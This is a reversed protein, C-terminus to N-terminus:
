ANIPTVREIELRWRNAPKDFGWLEVCWGAILLIPLEPATRMKKRRSAMNSRSTVQIALTLGNGVALIDIFGFLDHKRRSFSDWREVVEAVYGEKRLKSLVRQNHNVVTM